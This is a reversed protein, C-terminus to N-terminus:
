FRPIERAVTVEDVTIIGFRRLVKFALSAFAIVLWYFPYSLAKISFFIALGILAPFFSLYAGVFGIILGNAAKYIATRLTDEGSIDIGFQASFSERLKEIEAKDAQQARKKIINQFSRVANEDKLLIGLDIEEGDAFSDEPLLALFENRLKENSGASNNGSILTMGALFEDVSMEGDFFPYKAKVAKEIPLYSLNFAAEPIISDGAIDKPIPSTAFQTAALIAFATFLLPLFDDAVKRFKIKTHIRIEETVEFFGWLSVAFFVLWAGVVYLNAKGPTLILFPFVAASSFLIGWLKGEVLAYSVLLVVSWLLFVIGFPIAEKFSFAGDGVFLEAWFWAATFALILLLSLVTLKKSLINSTTPM